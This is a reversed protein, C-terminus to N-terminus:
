PIKKKIISSALATLENKENRVKSETVADLLLGLAKGTDPGPRCGLKILDSGDIALDKIFVAEKKEVIDLTMRYLEEANEDYLSRIEFVDKVADIGAKRMLKKLEARNEPEAKAYKVANIVRTVDANKAKLRRMVSRAKEESGSFLLSTLRLIADKKLRDVNGAAKKYDCDNDMGLIPCIVDGYVTLVSSAGDGELTKCLESYIREASVTSILDKMETIAKATNEEIEFCLESAFRLARLIRLHDEGFREGADNVSRIIRAEIDSQGGFPDTLAGNKDIAMANVTLDRRSLDDELRDSFTVHDPHRGDSYASERRFTTIEIRYEGVIVSVTGHKIGTEITPHDEFTRKIEDPKASTTVDYDSVPRGILMDRVAGGAVYAEYGAAELKNLVYKIEGPLFFM